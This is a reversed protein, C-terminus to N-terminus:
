FMDEASVNNVPRSVYTPAEKSVNDFESEDVVVRARNLTDYWKKCVELDEPSTKGTKAVRMVYFTGQDNTEKEAFLKFTAVAPPVGFHKAKAFHTVLEKGAGYSTRRFSLACPLLADDTDPMDGAETLAKMAKREKAIDGPLLVYFNICRDRRWATGQQQFELPADANDKTMPEVSRFEYKGGVKESVVFTKFVMLPIFEVGATGRAALVEGSTSRVIDGAQAKEDTVFESLGQMLLLKPILIDSTDLGESGWSTSASVVAPIGASEKKAIEAKKVM